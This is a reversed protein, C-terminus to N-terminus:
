EDRYVAACRYMSVPRPPAPRATRCRLRFPVTFRAAARLTPRTCVKVVEYRCVVTWHTPLARRLGLPARHLCRSSVDFVPGAPGGRIPHSANQRGRSFPLIAVAAVPRVGLGGGRGAGLQEGNRAVETLTAGAKTRCEVAEIWHFIEYTTTKIAAETGVRGEGERLAGLLAWRASVEVRPLARGVAARAALPLRPVVPARSRPM